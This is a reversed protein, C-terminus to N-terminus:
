RPWPARRQLLWCFAATGAAFFFPAKTLAALVGFLAAGLWAGASGTRIHREAFYLFWLALALCTGDTGAAAGIFFVLPQLLYLVVAGRALREGGFARALGYVPPVSAAIALWSVFLAWGISEGFFRLFIAVAAQWLPLEQPTPAGNANFGAIVPRLLDISTQAYIVATGYHQSRYRPYGRAACALQFVLIALLVGGVAIIWRQARWRALFSGSLDIANM